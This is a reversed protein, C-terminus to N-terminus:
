GEPGRIWAALERESWTGRTKEALIENLAHGSMVLGALEDLDELDLLTLPQVTLRGLSQEVTPRLYAWLTQPCAVRGVSVLGLTGSRSREEGGTVM